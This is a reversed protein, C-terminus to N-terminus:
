YASTGVLVNESLLMPVLDNEAESCIRRVDKAPLDIHERLYVHRVCARKRGPLREVCRDVRHLVYESVEQDAEDAEAQQDDESSWAGVPTMLDVLCSRWGLSPRWAFCWRRWARLYYRVDELSRRDTM